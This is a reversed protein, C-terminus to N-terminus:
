LEQRLYRNLAQQFRETDEPTVLVRPKGTLLFAGTRRTAYCRVMGIKSLYFWGFYGMFGASAFVKLGQRKLPNLSMWPKKALYHYNSFRDWSFLLPPFLRRIVQLGEPTVRLSKPSLGVSLTLILGIVVVPWLGASLQMDGSILTRLPFFIFLGGLIIISIPTFIRNLTDFPALKFEEM